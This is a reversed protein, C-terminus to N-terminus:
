SLLSEATTIATVDFSNLSFDARFTGSKSYFTNSSISSPLVKQFLTGLRSEWLRQATTFKASSQKTNHIVDQKFPYNGIHVDHLLQIM